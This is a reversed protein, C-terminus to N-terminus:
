EPANPNHVRFGPGQPTQEVDITVGDARRASLPDLHLTLGGAEVKLSGSSAPALHLHTRYRADVALHLDRGPGGQQELARGLAEAARETVTITPPAVDDPSEVGLMRHLEGSGFMEQVIDCGGVFEGQVYLQPITPWSSYEKVDERVEPDSLVDFTQYEPVLTDLVRVVTASFGCQPAERSGKMFLAVDNSRVFSEIRQRATEEESM